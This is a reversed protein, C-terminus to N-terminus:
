SSRLQRTTKQLVKVFSAVLPIFESRAYASLPRLLPPDLRAIDAKLGPPIVNRPVLAPGVGAAALRAAAEVQGTRVSGAPRFGANACAAELLESLGHTESYLVWERGALAGLPVSRASAAVDGQPLVVVFEEEGLDVLPGKWNVPTPGIGLDGVGSAVAQELADRHRYEHLGLSVGPRARHWVSITAPLLGVAISLVTAVEIEGGTANLASQAARRARGAALVTQRAEAAFARGAPTLAVGRPLREFLRGGLERELRAIQASLSPQAITLREAARTFSGEDAVALFYKMQHLQM